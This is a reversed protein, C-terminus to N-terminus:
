LVDDDDKLEEYPNAVDPGPDDDVGGIQRDPDGSAQELTDAMPGELDEDVV